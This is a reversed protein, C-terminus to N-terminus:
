VIDYHCLSRLRLDVLVILVIHLQHENAVSSHSLRRDDYRPSLVLEGVQVLWGHEVRILAHLIVLTALDLELDPVSSTM